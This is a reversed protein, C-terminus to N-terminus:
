SGFVHRWKMRDVVSMPHVFTADQGEKTVTISLDEPYTASSFNCSIEMTMGLTGDGPELGGPFSGGRAMGQSFVLNGEETNECHVDPYHGEIHRDSNNVIGLTFDYSQSAGSEGGEMRVSTVTYSIAEESRSMWDMHVNFFDGFRLEEVTDAGNEEEQIPWSAYVAM